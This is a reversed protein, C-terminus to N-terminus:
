QKRFLGQNRFQVNFIKLKPGPLIYDEKKFHLSCVRMRPFVKDMNLAIKWAKLRDIKDVVGDSNKVEVLQTNAKPFRHFSLNLNDRAKSNCGKVICKDYNNPLGGAIMNVIFIYFTDTGLINNVILAIFLLHDVLWGSNISM